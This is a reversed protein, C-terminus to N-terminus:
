DVYDEGYSNKKGGGSHFCYCCCRTWWTPSGPSHPLSPPHSWHPAPHPPGSAQWCGASCTGPTGPRWRACGRPQPSSGQSRKLGCRLRRWVRAEQLCWWTLHRHKNSSVNICLLDNLQITEKEQKPKPKSLFDNDHCVARRMRRFDSFLSLSPFFTSFPYRLDWSLRALLTETLTPPKSDWETIKNTFFFRMKKRNNKAEWDWSWRHLYTTKTKRVM